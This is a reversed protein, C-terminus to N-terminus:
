QANAIGIGVIMKRSWLIRCKKITKFHIHKIEIEAKMQRTRHEILGFRGLYVFSWIEVKKELFEICLCKVVFGLAAPSGVHWHYVKSRDM